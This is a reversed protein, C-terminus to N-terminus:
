QDLSHLAREAQQTNTFVHQGLVETGKTLRLTGNDPLAQRIQPQQPISGVKRRHFSRKSEVEPSFTNTGQQHIQAAMLACPTRGKM